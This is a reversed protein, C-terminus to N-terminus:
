LPSAFLAATLAAHVAALSPTVKVCAVGDIEVTAAGAPGVFGTGAAILSLAVSDPPEAGVPVIVNLNNPGPEGGDQVPTGIKLEVAVTDPSPDYEDPENVADDGPTYAHSTDYPPSVFLAGTTELQLEAFSSTVNVCAVGEIEVDAEGEAGDAKGTDTVSEAVSTFPTDGPPVIVNLKNPGPEGGTQVPAGIKLEVTVTVPFPEYVDAGNV